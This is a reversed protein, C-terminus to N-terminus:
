TLLLFFRIAALVVGIISLVIIITNRELAHVLQMGQLQLYVGFALSGIFTLYAVPGMQVGAIFLVAQSYAVVTFNESFKKPSGLQMFLWWTLFATAYTSIFYVVGFKISYFLNMSTIGAILSSGALTALLFFRADASNDSSLAAQFFEQPKIMIEKAQHLIFKIAGQTEPTNLGKVKDIAREQLSKKAQEIDSDEPKKPM